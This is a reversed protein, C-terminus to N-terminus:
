RYEWIGTVRNNATCKITVANPIGYEQYRAIGASRLKIRIIQSLLNKM